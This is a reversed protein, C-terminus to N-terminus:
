GDEKKVVWATERGIKGAKVFLFSGWKYTTENKKCSPKIEIIAKIKSTTLKWKKEHAEELKTLNWFPDPPQTNQTIVKTIAQTINQMMDGLLIAASESQTGLQINPQTNHHVTEIIGSRDISQAKNHIHSATDKPAIVEGQTTPVFNKLIGGNKLHQNQEDLLGIQEDTAYSKNGEKSLSIGLGDLRSYLSKRSKIEYRDLLQNVSLKM